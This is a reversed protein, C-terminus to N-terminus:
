LTGPSIGYNDFEKNFDQIFEDVFVTYNNDKWMKWLEETVWEIARGEDGRIFKIDEPSTANNIYITVFDNIKQKNKKDRTEKNDLFDFLGEKLVVLFPLDMDDKKIVGNKNNSKLKKLDEKAAKMMVKGHASTFDDGIGKPLLHDYTYYNDDKFFRGKMKEEKLLKNEALYKRLDFIGM